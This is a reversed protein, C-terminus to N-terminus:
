SVKVGHVTNGDDDEHHIGLLHLVGHEVLEGVEHEVDNEYEAAQRKAQDVNVIIDGLYYEGGELEEDMNFTLVDTPYDRDLHQKNLAQIEADRSLKISIKIDSYKDLLDKSKM